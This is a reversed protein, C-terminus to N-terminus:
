PFPHNPLLLEMLSCLDLQAKVKSVNSSFLGLKEGDAFQNALM